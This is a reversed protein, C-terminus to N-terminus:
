MISNDVSGVCGWARKKEGATDDERVLSLGMIGMGQRPVSVNAGNKKKKKKEVEGWVM